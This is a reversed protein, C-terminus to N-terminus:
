KIGNIHERYKRIMSIFKGNESYIKLGNEEAIDLYELAKEYEGLNGWAISTHYYAACLDEYGGAKTAAITAMNIYQIAQEETNGIISYQQALACLARIYTSDIIDNYESIRVCEKLYDIGNETNGSEIYLNGLLFCYENQVSPSSLDYKLSSDTAKKAYRIAENIDGSYRYIHRAYKSYLDANQFSDEGYVMEYVDLSQEFM